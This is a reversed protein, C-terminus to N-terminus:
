IQGSCIGNKVRPYLVLMLPIGLVISPISNNLAIILGLSAFPVMKLLELGWAIFLACAM